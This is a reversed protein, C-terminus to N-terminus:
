HPSTPSCEASTTLSQNVPTAERIEDTHMGLLDTTAALELFKAYIEGVEDVATTLGSLLDLRQQMMRQVSEQVQTSRVMQLAVRVARTVADELADVARAVRNAVTEVTRAAEIAQAAM